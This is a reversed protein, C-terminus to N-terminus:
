ESAAILKDCITVFLDEGGFAGAKSVVPLRGGDYDITGLAVGPLLEGVVDIATLKLADFLARATDGGTVVIGAIQERKLTECALGALAEAIQKADLAVSDMQRVTLLLARPQKGKTTEPRAYAFGDLQGAVALWETKHAGHAMLYAAQM